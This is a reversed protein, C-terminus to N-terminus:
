SELECEKLDRLRYNRVICNERFEDDSVSVSSQYDFVNSTHGKLVVM